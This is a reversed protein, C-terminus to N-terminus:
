RMEWVFIAAFSILIPEVATAVPAGTLIAAAVHGIGIACLMPVGNTFKNM